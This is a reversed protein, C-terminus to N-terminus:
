NLKALKLRARLHTSNFRLAEKYYKRALSPNHEQLCSGIFYAGDAFQSTRFKTKRCKESLERAKVLWPKESEGFQRALAAKQILSLFRKQEAGKTSSISNPFMLGEYYIDPIAIHDGKERLRSWLDIDQAYYFDPRYGGVQHYDKRRMMVSGHIIGGETTVIAQIGEKTVHRVNTSCFSANENMILANAQVLFRGPLSVDNADHRAIFDGQAYLCGEILSATLGKNERSVLKIRTDKGIQAQIIEETDDTSGDNIIILELEVGEQCLVSNITSLIREQANKVGM